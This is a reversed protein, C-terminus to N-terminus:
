EYKVLYKKFLSELLKDLDKGENEEKYIYNIDFIKKVEKKAKIKL